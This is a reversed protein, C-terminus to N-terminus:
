ASGADEEGDLPVVYAVGYQDFKVAVKGQELPTGIEFGAEKAYFVPEGRVGRRLLDNIYDTGFASRLADVFEATKPMADRSKM